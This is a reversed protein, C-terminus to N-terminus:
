DQTEVRAKDREGLLQRPRRIDRWVDRALGEFERFQPDNSRRARRAFERALAFFVAVILGLIFAIMTRLAVKRSMPQATEAPTDIIQLVPTDRMGDIRAQEQARLLAAFVEQRALVHRQLRDHQFTLEPSNRFDRNQRLFRELSDEAQRLEAQSESLRGGTFRAEDRGRAQRVELNYDNLLELLRAAMQEAMVPRDSTVRLEIVGTERRVTTAIASRLRYTARRWAPDPDMVLNLRWYDILTGKRAPLSDAPLQYEAEVARRLITTSRLLDEYFQPSQGAREGGLNVGFQQALAAAGGVSRSEAAQPVFTATAYYSRERNLSTIGVVFALALPLIVLAKWNRLLATIIEILAIENDPVPAPTPGNTANNMFNRTTTGPQVGRQNFM